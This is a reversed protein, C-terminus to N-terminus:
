KNMLYEDIEIKNYVKSKGLMHYPFQVILSNIKAESIGLYEVVENRKLWTKSEVSSSMKRITNQAVEYFQEQLDRLQQDTMIVKVEPQGDM